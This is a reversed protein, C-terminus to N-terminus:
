VYSRGERLLMRADALLRDLCALGEPRIRNVARLAREVLLAAATHWRLQSPPPLPRVEAYGGLFAEAWEGAAAQLGVHDDYRLAALLSGLDAAAPGPGAQDLDILTIRGATMIGNKPHVDGHLCVAPERSPEWRSALDDALAHALHSVDPRSRGILDAVQHAQSIDLRKFRPANPLPLTHLTALAAGLRTFGERRDIDELDALRPGHIAELVLTQHAPVYALPHPLGLHLDGSALHRRLSAYVGYAAKGEDGAYVKAYGLTEGDRSLCQVTAAKEPAYAVLRSTTWPRVDDLALTEPNRALVPLHALKRDNPFTWLVTDLKPMHIVPRLRGCPVTATLAHRYIEGSRGSFTRAAIPYYERGIQVRYLVRLSEGIRYKVRWIECGDLIMPGDVPLHTALRPAMERIDLLLDRQPIHPDPALTAASSAPASIPTVLM